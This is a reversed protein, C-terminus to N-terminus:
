QLTCTKSAHLTENKFPSVRTLADSRLILILMLGLLVLVNLSYSGIVILSDDPLTRWERIIGSFVFYAQVWAIVTFVRELQWDFNLAIVGVATLVFAMLFRVQHMKYDAAEGTVGAAMYPQLFGSFWAMLYAVTLFMLLLWARQFLKSRQRLTQCVGRPSFVPMDRLLADLEEQSPALDKDSKSIRERQM